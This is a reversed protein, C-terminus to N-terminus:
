KIRELFAEIRTKLQASDESSYDTEIRIAPVKSKELQKEIDMAEILYPSCFHLGYLMVGDAHLEDAMQKIHELRTPNPSFVACDIQM